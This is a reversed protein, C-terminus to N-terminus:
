EQAERFYAFAHGFESQSHIWEAKPASLAGLMVIWNLLEGAVNGANALREPTAEEVLQEVEGALLLAEVRAAWDPDPVGFVFDGPKIRPGFVELSFSGSGILGVRIDHPWTEIARRIVKGLEFCRRASPLPSLHGNVFVPIVPINMAPTLFHLPVIVSHDVEYNQVLSVDYDSHVAANRLHASFGPDSAIDYIPFEYGQSGGERNEGGATPTHTIANLDNPGSTRDDVGVAFIPYNDYFFTNLHDTTFIIAIEVGCNDLASKAADFYRAVECSPGLRAVVAPFNPTHPVGVGCTIRAM